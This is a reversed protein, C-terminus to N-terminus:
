NILYFQNILWNVNNRDISGGASKSQYIMVVECVHFIMEFKSPFEESISFLNRRPYGIKRINRWSLLGSNGDIKLNWFCVFPKKEKIGWSEEKRRMLSVLILITSSYQSSSLKERVAFVM